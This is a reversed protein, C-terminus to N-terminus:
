TRFLLLYLMCVILSLLPIVQGTIPSPVKISEGEFARMTENILKGEKKEKGVGFVCDRM